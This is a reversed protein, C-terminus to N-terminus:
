SRCWCGFYVWHSGEQWSRGRWLPQRQVRDEVELEGDVAHRGQRADPVHLAHGATAVGELHGLGQRHPLPPPRGDQPDQVHHVLLLRPAASLLLERGAHGLLNDGDDLAPRRHPVLPLNHVLQGGRGSGVQVVWAHEGLTLLLSIM